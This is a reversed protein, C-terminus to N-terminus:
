VLFCKSEIIIIYWVKIYCHMININHLAQIGKVINIFVKWIEEETFNTGNRKHTFIPTFLDSNNVYETM